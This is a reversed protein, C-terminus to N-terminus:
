ETFEPKGLVGQGHGKGGSVYGQVEGFCWAEASQGEGSWSFGLRRAAMPDQGNQDKEKFAGM